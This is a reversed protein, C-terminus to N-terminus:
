SFHGDKDKIRKKIKSSKGHKNCKDHISDEDHGDHEGHEDHDAIVISISIQIGFEREGTFAFASVLMNRKWQGVEAVRGLACQSKRLLVDCGGRGGGDM